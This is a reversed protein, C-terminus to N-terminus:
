QVSANRVEQASVYRWEEGTRARWMGLESAKGRLM